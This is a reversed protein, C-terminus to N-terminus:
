FGVLPLFAGQRSLVASRAVQVEEELMKLERNAAMAQCVLGTLLPDNYFEDVRLQALNEPTAAGNFNTPLGLGTEAPRLSPIQCAPLVLLLGCVIACAGVRSACPAITFRVSLNM